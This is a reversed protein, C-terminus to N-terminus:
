VVMPRSSCALRDLTGQKAASLETKAADLAAAPSEQGGIGVVVISLTLPFSRGGLVFPAVAVVERLREAVRNATELKVGEIIAAFEGGGIRALLDSDRLQWRLVRALTALLRDGTRSGHAENMQRFDDIDIYLLASPSGAAARGLADALARDFIEANPLDTLPDRMTPPALRSENAKRQTVDSVTGVIMEGDSMEFKRVSFRLWIESGNKHVAPLEGVEEGLTVVRAVYRRVEVRTTPNSYLLQGFGDRNLEAVSYGTIDALARNCLLIQGSPTGVYVGDRCQEIVARVMTERDRDAREGASRAASDLALADNARGSNASAVATAEPVSGIDRPRWRSRGCGVAAGAGFAALVAIAGLLLSTDM